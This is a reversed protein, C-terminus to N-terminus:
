ARRVWRRSRLVLATIGGGLALILATAQAPRAALVVRDPSVADLIELAPLDLAWSAAGSSASFLLGAAICVGLFSAPAGRTSVM